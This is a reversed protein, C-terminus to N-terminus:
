DTSQLASTCYDGWAHMIKRRESALPARDYAGNYGDDRVHLLCLEVADQDFRRNNGLLDDKAWTRFTARATGHLTIVCEKGDQKSKIQDIWGVGDKAKRKEHLGRLFM